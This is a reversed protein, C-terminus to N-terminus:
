QHTSFLFPPFVSGVPCHITHSRTGPWVKQVAPTRVKTSCHCGQAREKEATLLKELRERRGKWDQRSAERRKADEEDKEVTENREETCGSEESCREEECETGSVKNRGQRSKMWSESRSTTSISFSMSRQFLLLSRELRAGELKLMKKKQTHTSGHSTGVEDIKRWDLDDGAVEAIRIEVDTVDKGAIM